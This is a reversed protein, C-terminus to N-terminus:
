LDRPIIRMVRAGRSRGASLRDVESQWYNIQRRIEAIDVRTLQRTGIKYSQGTAVKKEAELWLELYDQSQQLTMSM